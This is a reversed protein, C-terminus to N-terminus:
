PISVKQERECSPCTIIAPGHWPEPRFLSGGGHKHVWRPSSSWWHRSAQLPGPGYWPLGSPHAQPRETLRFTMHFSGDGGRLFFPQGCYDCREPENM